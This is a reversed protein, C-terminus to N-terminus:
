RQLPNLENGLVEDVSWSRHRDSSSHSMVVVLVPKLGMFVFTGREWSHRKIYSPRSKDGAAGENYQCKNVVPQIGNATSPSIPELLLCSGENGDQQTPTEGRGGSSEQAERREGAEEPKGAERTPCTGEGSWSRRPHSLSM